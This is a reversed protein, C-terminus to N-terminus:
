KFYKNIFDSLKITNDPNTKEDLWLLLRSRVGDERSYIHHIVYKTIEYKMDEFIAEAVSFNSPCPGIKECIVSVIEHKDIDRLEDRWTDAFISDCLDIDDRREFNKRREIKGPYM